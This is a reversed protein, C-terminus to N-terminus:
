TEEEVEKGILGHIFILFQKPFGWFCGTTTQAGTSRSSANKDIPIYLFDQAPSILSFSPLLM